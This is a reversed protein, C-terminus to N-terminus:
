WPYDKPFKWGNDMLIKACTFGNNQCNSIIVSKSSNYGKPKIYSGDVFNKVVVFEFIDKGRTNPKSKGNVDLYLHGVTDSSFYLAVSSGDLLVFKMICSANRITNDLNGNMLYEKDAWCSKGGKCDKIVNLYPLIYTQVFKYNEDIANSQPFEWNIIDGNEAVAMNLAQNIIAYSKKLRNEIVHKQYNKVVTPLTIASVVGIVGQTILVEVLTFGFKLRMIEEMKNDSNAVTTRFYYLM